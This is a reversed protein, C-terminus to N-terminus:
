CCGDCFMHQMGYKKRFILKSLQNTAAETFKYWREPQAAAEAPSRGFNPYVNKQVSSFTKQM